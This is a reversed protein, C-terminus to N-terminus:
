GEWRGPLVLRFTTGQGEVSSASLSGGAEELEQRSIALGLGTGKVKTTFFPDFVRQLDAEGIGPGDDTVTIVIDDAQRAVTVHVQSAGAEVSNRVVNRVARRLTDGALEVVGPVDGEFRVQAGARRWVEDDTRLVGRVLATPNAPALEPERRRSLDLYRATVQELRAIEDSITGLMAAGDGDPDEGLEDALLEAHLSMANLPNRVEHTIQALMQGVLALRESRALRERDEVRRTVEEGVVLRGAEGFPVVEIDFLRGPLGPLEVQEHRGQDLGVLDSPLAGGEDLAWLARAAPNATTVRDDEVVVLGAHITDVIRRLRFSLRDLAEAREVLRRDRETIADVMANFERALLGVEDHSTIEVRGAEEGATIRQVQRTLHGIPRLTVLAAGALVGALAIALLGAAGGVAVARRQAAATRESVRQIRGEVLASLDGTSGVLQTRLLGLDALARAEQGKGEQAATTWAIVAEENAVALAEVAELAQVATAFAVADAPDPARQGAARAVVLGQRATETLTARYLAASSRAGALPRPSERLFREQEQDLQRATADLRAATDALPLYGADLVAISDGVQQLQVLTYGLASAWAALSLVFAGLIRARISRRPALQSAM